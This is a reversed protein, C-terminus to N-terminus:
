VVAVDDVCGDIIDAGARRHAIRPARRILATLKCRARAVAFRELATGGTLLRLVTAFTTPILVLGVSAVYSWTGAAQAGFYQALAGTLLGALAAGLLALELQDRMASRSLM